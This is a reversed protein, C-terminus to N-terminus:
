PVAHVVEDNVSTCLASPYGQYGKFAPKLNSKFILEAALKDLDITRVGTRVEAKLRKMIASLARGAQHMIEIEKETKISIM